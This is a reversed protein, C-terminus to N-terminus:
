AAPTFAPLCTLPTRCPLTFSSRVWCLALHLRRCASCRCAPLFPLCSVSFSSRFPVVRLTGPSSARARSSRLGLHLLRAAAALTNRAARCSTGARFRLYGLLCASVCRCAAPLCAPLLFSYAPPLTRLLVCSVIVAASVALCATTRTRARALFPLPLAFRCFPLVCFIQFPLCTFVAPLVCSYSSRCLPLQPPPSFGSAATAVFGFACRANNFRRRLAAIWLAVACRSLRTSARLCFGSASFPLAASGACDLALVCCVWTPADRLWALLFDLLPPLYRLCCPSALRCLAASGSRFRAACAFPLCSRCRLCLNIWCASVWTAPLVFGPPPLASFGIGDLCFSYLPLLCAGASSAASVLRCCHCAAAPLGPLCLCAAFPVWCFTAVAPTHVAPIRLCAHAHAHTEGALRCPVPIASVMTRCLLCCLCAPLFARLVARRLFALPLGRTGCTVAADTNLSSRSSLPLMSTWTVAPAAIFACAAPAAGVASRLSCSCTCWFAPLTAAQSASVCLCASVAVRTIAPPYFPLLVAHLRLLCGLCAPLRLFRILFRCAAAPMWVSGVCCRAPLLCYFAPSVHTSVCPACATRLHLLIRLYARVATTCGRCTIWFPLVCFSSAAAPLCAPLHCFPTGATVQAPSRCATRYATGPPSGAAPSCASPYRPLLVASFTGCRALCRVSVAAKCAPSFSFLHPLPPDPPPLCASRPLLTCFAASTASVAFPLPPPLPLCFPLYACFVRRLPFPLRNWGSFASRCTIWSACFWAPICFSACFRLSSGRYPLSILRLCAAVPAIAAAAPLFRRCFRRLCASRLLNLCFPLLHPFAVSCFPLVLCTRLHLRCRRLVFPLPLLYDLLIWASRCCDMWFPLPPPCCRLRVAPASAAPPAHASVTRTSVTAPFPLCRTRPTYCRFWRASFPLCCCPLLPLARLAHTHLHTFPITHELCFSRVCAATSRPLLHSAPPLFPIFRPMQCASVYHRHFSRLFPAFPLCAASLVHWSRPLPLGLVAAVTFPPLMRAPLVTGMRASGSTLCLCVWAPLLCVFDSRFPLWVSVLCALCCDLQQPSVQGLVLPLPSCSPLRVSGPPPLASIWPTLTWLHIRAAFGANLYSLWYHCFWAAFPLLCIRAAATVAAAPLRCCGRCAALVACSAAAIRLPLTIWATNHPMYLYVTVAPLCTNASVCCAPLHVRPLGPASLARHKERTKSDLGCATHPLAAPMIRLFLYRVCIFRVSHCAPLL